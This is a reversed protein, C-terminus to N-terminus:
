RWSHRQVCRDVSGLKGQEELKFLAAALEEPKPERGADGTLAGGLPQPLLLLTEALPIDVEAVLGRGREPPDAYSSEPKCAGTM